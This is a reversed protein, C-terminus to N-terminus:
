LHCLIHMYDAQKASWSYQLQIPLNPTMAEKRQTLFHYVHMGIVHVADKTVEM